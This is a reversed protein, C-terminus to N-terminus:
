QNFRDRLEDYSEGTRELIAKDETFSQWRKIITDCYEETLEMIYSSINYKEAGLLTFGSGGYLDAVSQVDQGWKDFFWEFLRVPKQTPHQRVTDHEYQGGIAGNWKVNCVHRQHKQKSWCLEFESGHFGNDNMGDRKNWVIFAGDNRKPIHEAYYDAGWLFIEKCYSFNELVSTILEPKFDGHDGVVNKWKKSHINEFGNLSGSKKGDKGIGMKSYDANLKMGYPPDTFVMDVKNGNMLKDITEKCTSDGCMLRHKGLIWIDGKQTIPQESEDTDPIADEDSLGDNSGGTGMDMLDTLFDQDFGIDMMDFDLDMEQLQELEVGLLEMDWDAEESVRNVSLRFAKIQADTMDSCDITPVSTLGLKKAAKIRLHGDVIDNGKVLVPVRFGFASIAGAAKDVAHDNQRPNNIYPILNELPLNIIEIKDKVTDM